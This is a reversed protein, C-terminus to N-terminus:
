SHARSLRSSASSWSAQFPTHLLLTVFIFFSLPSGSFQRPLVARKASRDALAKSFIL